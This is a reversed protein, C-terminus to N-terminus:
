KSTAPLRRLTGIVLVSDGAIKATHRIAAALWTACASSL